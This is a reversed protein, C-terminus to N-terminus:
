SETECAAGRVQVEARSSRIYMSLGAAVTADEIRHDLVFCLPRSPHLSFSLM